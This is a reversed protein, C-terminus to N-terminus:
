RLDEVLDSFRDAPEHTTRIIEVSYTGDTLDIAVRDLRSEFLKYHNGDPAVQQHDTLLDLAQLQEIRRYVTPLSADCRDKLAKASMPETSTAALIERAYRDDLLSAIESLDDDTTM